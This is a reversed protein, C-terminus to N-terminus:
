EDKNDRVNELYNLVEKADFYATTGSHNVCAIEKSLPSKRDISVLRINRTKPPLRNITLALLPPDSVLGSDEWLKIREHCDSILHDIHSKNM